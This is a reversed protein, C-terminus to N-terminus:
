IIKWEVTQFEKNLSVLDLWELLLNVHIVIKDLPNNHPHSPQHIRPIQNCPPLMQEAKCLFKHIDPFHEFIECNVHNNIM